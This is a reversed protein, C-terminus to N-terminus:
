ANFQWCKMIVTIVRRYYHYDGASETIIVEHASDGPQATGSQLRTVKWLEVGRGPSGLGTTVLCARGSRGAWTLTRPLFWAREVDM